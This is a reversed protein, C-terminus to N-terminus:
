LNYNSAIYSLTDCLALIEAEFNKICGDYEIIAAREEFIESYIENSCIIERLTKLTDPTKTNGDGKNVHTKALDTNTVGCVQNNQLHKTINHIDSNGFYVTKNRKKSMCTAPTVSTVGSVGLSYPLEKFFDSTKM